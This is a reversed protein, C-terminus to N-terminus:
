EEKRYDAIIDATFVKPPPTLTYTVAEWGDYEDIEWYAGDPVEAIALEAYKDSAAEKLTEVVAVLDADARSITYNVDDYGEYAYATGKRKNLEQIAQESLGFGGYCNNFVIKM